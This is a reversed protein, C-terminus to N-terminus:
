FTFRFGFDVALGDFDIEGGQVYYIGPDVEGDLAGVVFDCKQPEVDCNADPDILPDPQLSGGDIVGGRTVTIAGYAESALPSDDFATQNPVAKGLDTTGNFEFGITRSSHTWRVDLVLSWKSNLSYELGGVLHWEFTDDVDVTAGALDGVSAPNGLTESGFLGSSLRSFGGFSADMNLSIDNLDDSPAFGIFSYGIGGGFYPNLRARPRFRGMATLQLPVRELEGAEYRFFEFAFQENPAPQTGVFQGQVEIDGITSKQYGLSAEVLFVRSVAYQGRVTAIPGSNINLEGFVASDNRPDRFVDTLTQDRRSTLVLLNQADSEVADLGMFAGISASIRWKNEVEEATAPAFAVAVILLTLV